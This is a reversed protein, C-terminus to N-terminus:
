GGRANKHARWRGKTRKRATPDGAPFPDTQGRWPVTSRPEPTEAADKAKERDMMAHFAFGTTPPNPPLSGGGTAAPGRLSQEAPGTTPLGTTMADDGFATGAVGFVGRLQAVPRPRPPEHQTPHSISPEADSSELEKPHGSPGPLRQGPGDKTHTLPSHSARRETPHLPPNSDGPEM